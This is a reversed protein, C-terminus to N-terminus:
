FHGSNSYPLCFSLCTEHLAELAEETKTEKWTHCFTGVWYKLVKRNQRISSKYRFWASSRKGISNVHSPILSMVSGSQGVWLCQGRLDGTWPWCHSQSAALWFLWLAQLAPKRGRGMEGLRETKPLVSAANGEKDGTQLAFERDWDFKQGAGWDRSAMLVSPSNDQTQRQIKM